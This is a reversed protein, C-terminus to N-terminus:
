FSQKNKSLGDNGHNIPPLPHNEYIKQKISNATIQIDSENKQNITSDILAVTEKYEILKKDLEQVVEKEIGNIKSVRSPFSRDKKNSPNSTTRTHLITSSKFKDCIEGIAHSVIMKLGDLPLNKNKLMFDIITKPINQPSESAQIVSLNYAGQLKRKQNLSFLVLEDVDFVNNKM